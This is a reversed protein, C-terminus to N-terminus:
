PRRAPSVKGEPVPTTTAFIVKAGTEKLRAAIKRLNAEYQDLEVQRKGDDMVKLDHLGFNFHIVDWEFTGLWADVKAVGNSTPGGNEGIRHVNARGRLRERVVPTYGMSISDGILLVRKLGPTERVVALAPDKKAPTQAMLAGAAMAALILKKM